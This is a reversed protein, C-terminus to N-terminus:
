IEEILDWETERGAESFRGDQRYSYNDNGIFDYGGESPEDSISVITVVPFEYSYSPSVGGRIKYAKGVELKVAM